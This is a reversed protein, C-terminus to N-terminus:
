TGKKTSSRESYARHYKQGHAMQMTHESRNMIQSCTADSSIFNCTYMPPPTQSLSKSHTQRGSAGILKWIKRKCLTLFIFTQRGPISARIAICHCWKSRVSMEQLTACCGNIVSVNSLTRLAPHNTTTRRTVYVERRASEVNIVLDFFKGTRWVSKPHSTCFSAASTTQAAESRREARADTERKKNM